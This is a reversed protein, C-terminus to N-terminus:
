FPLMKSMQEPCRSGRVKLSDIVGDIEKLEAEKLQIKMLALAESWTSARRREV